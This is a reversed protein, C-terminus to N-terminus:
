IVQGGFNQLIAAVAGDASTKRTESADPDHVARVRVSAGLVDQLIKEVLDRNKARNLTEAHLSYAFRIEVTNGEVTGLEGSQLILPLSANCEQVKAFVQPWKRMVDQLDLVPIDGLAVDKIPPSDSSPSIAGVEGHGQHVDVVGKQEIIDSLGPGEKVFPSPPRTTGGKGLSASPPKEVDGGRGLPPSPPTAVPPTNGGDGECLRVIAIEASVQPISDLRSSRKAELFMEIARSLISSSWKQGLTNLRLVTEPDYPPHFSDMGGLKLLLATRLAEASADLFAGVDMGQELYDNLLRVADATRHEPLLELLSVVSSTQAIPLVLSAQEAGITKEGLAMLQGLLSEADRECGESQRALERLVGDEITVGEAACIAKLRDTMEQFPIRHFDFRQCRSIITAPVKHIETTALIFLAHAPPEELTKLLANFASTSLMHVEDIIFVKMKAKNPSFRVSEIIHERVHDVGTNSAADIEYVDLSSGGTIEQCSSCVNCPEPLSDKGETIGQCNVAKALLRAATTKGVGRPGTFLYAHAVRGIKLQNQLTRKVHEQGTLDAFTQPRYTRYLAQSM